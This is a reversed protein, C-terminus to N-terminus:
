GKTKFKYGPPYGQLKYCKDVVHGLGRCHTCQPRSSKGKNFGKVFSGNNKIGLASAETTPNKGLKRQKEDQVLLSFVKSLSSIPDMLLIQGRVATYTDNLSMLFSIVCEKAQHGCSCTRYELLEDWLGEFKTYYANITLDEQSLSFVERRLEFIQPGNGQSFRHQLYIPLACTQVGTM